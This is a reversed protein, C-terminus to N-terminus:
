LGNAIIDPSEVTIKLGSPEGEGKQEPRKWYRNSSDLNRAKKFEPNLQIARGFHKEALANMGVNQL